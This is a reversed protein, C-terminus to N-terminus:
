EEVIDLLEVEFNLDANPPIVGGAGRHGYGYDSTIKLLAKEGVQMDGVGEDWGQIVQGVGVKFQFPRNRKHSSDFVQGNSALTGTYHCMVKQGTSPKPGDGAKIIEKTVGM